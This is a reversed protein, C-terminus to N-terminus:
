NYVQRLCGKLLLPLCPLSQSQMRTKAIISVLSSNRKMISRLHEVLRRQERFADIADEIERSNGCVIRKANPKGNEYRQKAHLEKTRIKRLRAEFQLKQAVLANM